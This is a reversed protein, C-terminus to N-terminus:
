VVTKHIIQKGNCGHPVSGKELMYNMGIYNM